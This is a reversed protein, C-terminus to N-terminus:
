PSSFNNNNGDATMTNKIFAVIVMAERECLNTLKYRQAAAPIIFTEAYHFHMSKGNDTEVMISDGEVLSLVHLNNNTEISISGMFHYRWVDYYHLIHTPLHYKQWGNGEELLVPRSIFDRRVTEGKRSFDLNEMARHINLDRPNGDLDMRLWDYIKFTYIYPTTSIELVLNGTGSGHITGDPILFLDHKRSLHQQVFVPIDVPTKDRASREVEQRFILPDIREQFGLNVIASDQAGLIYYAEQQTFNEGFHGRIYNERPHCQISLNGGNFTDLFDFRIPFEKGFRPFSNGLVDAAHNLMLWDFSAELLYGGSQMIIGNEPTILEFSWAYNPVDNSLGAIRDKIWNGGWVGPEFWPRVRFVSRSMAHLAAIFDRGEMWTIDDPRQGDLLIDIKLSIKEKHRNLVIWDVFYFRKYMAKPHAPRDAGLNTVTGAHSRYHLENKPLDAYILCGNWNVLSAGPGYIINLQAEPDPTIHSIESDNFFDSLQLDTRTGFLPENGGLFPEVMRDIDGPSKLLQRIDNWHVRIGHGRFFQDLQLRLDDFFIGQYGDILVM